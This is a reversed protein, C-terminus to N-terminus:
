KNSKNVTQLLATVLAVVVVGVIPLLQQQQLQKASNSTPCNDLQRVHHTHTNRETHTHTQHTHKHAMQCLLQAAITRAAAVSHTHSRQLAIAWFKHCSLYSSNASTATDTNTYSDTDTYTDIDTATETQTQQPMSAYRYRAKSSENPSKDAAKTPQRKNINVSENGGRRGRGRGTGRRGVERPSDRGFPPGWTRAKWNVNNTSIFLYRYVGVHVEQM